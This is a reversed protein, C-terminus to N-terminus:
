EESLKAGVAQLEKTLKEVETQLSKVRETLEGLQKEVDSREVRIAPQGLISGIRQQANLSQNYSEILAKRQEETLELSGAQPQFVAAKGGPLTWVKLLRGDEGATVVQGPQWLRIAEEYHKLADSFLLQDPHQDPYPDLTAAIVNKNGDRTFTIGVEDGAKHRGIIQVVQKPTRVLEDDIKLIIDGEAFGAKKAASEDIVHTIYPADVEEDDDDNLQIGLFGRKLVIAEEGKYAQMLDRVYKSPVAFSLAADDQKAVLIGVVEGKLNALPAGASMPGVSADTQLVAAPLEGVTRNKATIIGAVAARENVDTCVVAAVQAGLLVDDTSLTITPLDKGDIKLLQLGSRRDTVVIKAEVQQNNSLTVKVDGKNSGLMTVILGDPSVIAGSSYSVADVAPAEERKTEDAEEAAAEEEPEAVLGSVAALQEIEARAVPKAALAELTAAAVAVRQQEAKAAGAVAELKVRLRSQDDEDAAPQETKLEVAVTAPLLKQVTETVQADASAVFACCVAFIM